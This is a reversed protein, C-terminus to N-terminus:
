AVLKIFLAHENGGGLVQKRGQDTAADVIGDHLQIVQLQGNEVAARQRKHLGYALTTDALLAPGASIQADAALELQPFTGLKDRHVRGLGIGDRVSDIKRM